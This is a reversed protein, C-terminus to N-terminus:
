ETYIYTNQTLVYIYFNRCLNFENSSMRLLLVLIFIESKKFHFEYIKKANVM